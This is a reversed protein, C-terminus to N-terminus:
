LHNHRERTSKTMNQNFEAPANIHPVLNELFNTQEDNQQAEPQQWLAALAVLVSGHQTILARMREQIDKPMTHLILFVFWTCLTCSGQQHLNCQFFTALFDLSVFISLSLFLAKGAVVVMHFTSVQTAKLVKLTTLLKAVNVEEM